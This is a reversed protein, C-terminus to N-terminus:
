DVPMRRLSIASPGPARRENASENGDYDPSLGLIAFLLPAVDDRTVFPLFATVGSAGSKAPVTGLQTAGFRSPWTADTRPCNM